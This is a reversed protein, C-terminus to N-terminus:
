PPTPTVPRWGSPCQPVSPYYGQPNDCYYWTPPAPPIYVQPPPTVVVPPAAYPAWYPDWYPGWYAGIGVGLRPGFFGHGGHGFHHRGHGFHPGGHGGGHGAYGPVASTVLLLVLLGGLVLWPPRTGTAEQTDCMASGKSLVDVSPATLRGRRAEGGWLCVERTGAHRSAGERCLSVEGIGSAWAGPLVANGGKAGATRRRTATGHAAAKHNQVM